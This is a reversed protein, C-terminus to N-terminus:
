SIGVRKFYESVLALDRRDGRAGRMSVMLKRHFTLLAYGWMKRCVAAVQNICRPASGHCASPWRPM